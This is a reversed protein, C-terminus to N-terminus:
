KISNYDKAEEAPILGCLVEPFSDRVGFGRARVSLMRDSYERWPATKGWLGAQKANRVSFTRVIPNKNGKRIISCTAVRDDGEGEITEDCSVFDPHQKVLALMTDTKLTPVGNIIYISQIGCMPTLGVEFAYQIALMCDVPKNRKAKPVFDSNCIMKCFKFLHNISDVPFGMISLTNGTTPMAHNLASPEPKLIEEPSFQTEAIKPTEKPKEERKSIGWYTSHAESGDDYKSVNTDNSYNPNPNDDRGMGVIEHELNPNITTM